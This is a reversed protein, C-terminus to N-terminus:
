ENQDETLFLDVTAADMGNAKDQVGHKSHDEEDETTEIDSFHLVVSEAENHVGQGSHDEEDESSTDSSDADDTSRAVNQVGQELYGEEDETNIDSFEVLDLGAALNEALDLGAALNESSPESHEEEDQELGRPEDEMMQQSTRDSLQEDQKQRQFTEVLSPQVKLLRRRLKNRLSTIGRLSSSMFLQTEQTYLSFLKKWQREFSLVSQMSMNEKGRSERILRLVTERQEGEAKRHWIPDIMEELAILEKVEARVDRTSIHFEHFDANLNRLAKIAPLHLDYQCRLMEERWEKDSKAWEEAQLRLTEDDAKYPDTDFNSLAASLKDFAHSLPRFIKVASVAAEFHFSDIIQAFIADAEEYTNKSWLRHILRDWRMEDKAPPLDNLDEYPLERRRGHRLKVESVLDILGKCIKQLVLQVDRVLQVLERAYRVEWLLQEVLSTTRPTSEDEEDRISLDEDIEEDHVGDDDAVNYDLQGDAEDSNFQGNAGDDRFEESASAM